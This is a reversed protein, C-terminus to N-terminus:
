RGGGNPIPDSYRYFRILVFCFSFDFVSVQFKPGMLVPVTSPPVWFKFMSLTVYIEIISCVNNVSFLISVFNICCLGEGVAVPPSSFWCFSCKCM